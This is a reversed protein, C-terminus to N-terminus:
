RRSRGVRRPVITVVVDDEVIYTMGDALIHYRQLGITGAAVTARALSKELADRLPEVDVGGARDLFRLLAHDSVRIGNPRRSSM